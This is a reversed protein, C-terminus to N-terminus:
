GKRRFKKKREKLSLILKGTRITRQVADAMFFHDYSYLSLGVATVIGLKRFRKGSKGTKGGSSSSSGSSNSSSSSSSMSIREVGKGKYNHIHILPRLRVASPATGFNRNSKIEIISRYNIIISNSRSTTLISRLTSSSQLKSM